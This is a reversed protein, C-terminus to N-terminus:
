RHKSSWPDAHDWPTKCPELIIRRVRRANPAIFLRERAQADIGQFRISYSPLAADASDLMLEPGDNRGTDIMKAGRIISAGDAYYVVKLDYRGGPSTDTRRAFFAYDTSASERPIRVWGDRFALVNMPTQYKLALIYFMGILIPWTIVGNKCFAWKFFSRM